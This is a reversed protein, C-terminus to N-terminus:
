DSDTLMLHDDSFGDDSSSETSFQFEGEDNGFERYDEHNDTYRKAISQAKNSDPTHNGVM